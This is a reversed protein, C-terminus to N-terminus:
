LCVEAVSGGGGRRAKLFEKFGQRHKSRLEKRQELMEKTTPGEV